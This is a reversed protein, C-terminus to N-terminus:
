TLGLAAAADRMRTLASLLEPTRRVEVLVIRFPPPFVSVGTIEILLKPTTAAWADVLRQVDALATGAAFGCLTVHPAAPYSVPLGELRKRFQEQIGRFVDAVVVPARLVVFRQGELQARHASDDIFAQYTSM